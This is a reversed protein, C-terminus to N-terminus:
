PTHLSMTLSIGRHCGKKAILRVICNEPILNCITCLQRPIYNILIIRLILRIELIFYITFPDLPNLIKTCVTSQEGAVVNTDLETSSIAYQSDAEM